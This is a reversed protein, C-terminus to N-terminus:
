LAYTDSELVGHRWGEVDSGSSGTSWGPLQLFNRDRRAFIGSNRISSGKAPGAAASRVLYWDLVVRNGTERSEPCLRSLLIESYVQNVAGRVHFTPTNSGANQEPDLVTSQSDPEPGTRTIRGKNRTSAVKDPPKSSQVKEVEHFHCACRGQLFEKYRGMTISFTDIVEYGLHKATSIIDGNQRNLLQLLAERFTPRQKKELWFQPYYSYSVQTRGANLNQYVLTDHAKGWDELSSNVREMLFYMMGRNTSDGIFLV